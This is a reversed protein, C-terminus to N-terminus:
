LEIEKRQSPPATLPKGNLTLVSCDVHVLPGLPGSGSVQTFLGFTLSM